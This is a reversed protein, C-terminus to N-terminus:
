AMVFSSSGPLSTSYSISISLLSISLWITPVYLIYMITYNNRLLVYTYYYYYYYMSTCTPTLQTATVAYVYVLCVALVTAWCMTITFVFDFDTYIVFDFTTHYPMYIDTYILVAYLMSTCPGIELVCVTHQLVYWNSHSYYDHVSSYLDYLWGYNILPIGGELQCITHWTTIPISVHTYTVVTLTAWLWMSLSHALLLCYWCYNMTMCCISIGARTYTTCMVMISPHYLMSTSM